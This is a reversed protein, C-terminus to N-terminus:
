AAIKAAVFRGNILRGIRKTGDSAERIVKTPDRPYTSYSYIGTKKDRFVVQKDIGPRRLAEGVRKVLVSATENASVASASRKKPEVRVLAFGAVVTTPQRTKSAGKKTHEAPM